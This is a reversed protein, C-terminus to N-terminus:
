QSESAEIMGVLRATAARPDDASSIASVVAYLAVKEPGLERINTANIGGIACVPLHTAQQTRRVAEIGVAAKGPKTPSAFVPGIAVYSAGEREATEVSQTDPTTAGIIACPGLLRRAIMVPMDEQGLHVGDAEVALAVDARDNVILPVSAARTLQLLAAVEETVQRTRKRKERYQIMGVGGSIAAEVLRLLEAIPLGAPLIFYLKSRLCPLPM